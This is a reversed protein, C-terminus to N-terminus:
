AMNTYPDKGQDHVHIDGGRVESYNDGGKNVTNQNNVITVARKDGMMEEKRKMQMDENEKRAVFRAPDNEGGSMQAGAAAINGLNPKSDEKGGAMVDDFAKNFSEIPSFPSLLAALAGAGIAKFLKGISALGESIFSGAGAFFNIIGDVMGILADTIAQVPDLADMKAKVDDFGFLGAVFGILKTIMSPVFGLIFGVFKAGGAKLAEGVSGTEEMTSQFDRFAMVLGSAVLAIAAVIAIPIALPILLAGMGSLLGMFGTSLLGVAIQIGTIALKVMGVGTVLSTLKLLVLGLGLVLGATAKNLGLSTEGNPDLLDAFEIIFDVLFKVGKKFMDSQLFAMLALVGIGGKIATFSTSAFSKISNGLGSIKDGIFNGLGTLSKNNKIFNMKGIIKQGRQQMTEKKDKKKAADAIINAMNESQANSNEENSKLEKSTSESDTRTVVGQLAQLNKENKQSHATAQDLRRKDRQDEAANNEALTQNLKAFDERNQNQLNQIDKKKAM